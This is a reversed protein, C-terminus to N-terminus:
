VGEVSCIVLTLRGRICTYKAELYKSLDRPCPRKQVVLLDRVPVDCSRRGSCWADFEAMVDASCGKGGFDVLLCRGLSM